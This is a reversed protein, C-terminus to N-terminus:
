SKWGQTKENACHKKRVNSKQYSSIPQIFQDGAILRDMNHKAFPEKSCSLAAATGTIVSAIRRKAETLKDASGEMARELVLLKGTVPHAVQDHQELRLVIPPALLTTHREMVADLPVRSYSRRWKTDIGNLYYTGPFMRGVTPYVPSYPAGARHMRARTELAHDLDSPNVEERSALRQTLQMAKAITQVSFKSQQNTPQRVQLKYMTALAGSGYSFMVISKGPQLQNKRRRM